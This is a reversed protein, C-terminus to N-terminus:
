AIKSEATTWIYFDEGQNYADFLSKNEEDDSTLFQSQSTMIQASSASVVSSAYMGVVFVISSLILVRKTM